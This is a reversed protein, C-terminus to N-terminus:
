RSGSGLAWAWWLVVTGVSILLSMEIVSPYREILIKHGNFREIHKTIIKTHIDIMEEYTEPDDRSWYLPCLMDFGGRDSLEDLMAEILERAQDKDMM